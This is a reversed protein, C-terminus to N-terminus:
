SVTFTPIGFLDPKFEVIRNIMEPMGGDHADRDFVAVEDGHQKLATGLYLLGLPPACHHSTTKCSSARLAAVRRSVGREAYTYNGTNAGTSQTAQHDALGLFWVM